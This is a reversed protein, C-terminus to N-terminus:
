CPQPESDRVRIASTFGDRVRVRVRGGSHRGKLIAPRCGWCVGKGLTLTLAITLGGEGLSSISAEGVPGPTFRCCPFRRFPFRRVPGEGRLNM